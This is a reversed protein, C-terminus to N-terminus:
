DIKLWRYFVRKELCIDDLAGFCNEELISSWVKRASPGGYGTFREPNNLLNVYVGQNHSTPSVHHEIAESLSTWGDVDCDETDRLHQVYNSGVKGAPTEALKNAIPSLNNGTTSINTNYNIRGLTKDFVKNVDQDYDYGYQEASSSVWGYDNEVKTKGKLKEEEEV